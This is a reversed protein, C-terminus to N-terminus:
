KQGCVHCQNDMIFIFVILTRNFDIPSTEPTTESSESTPIPRQIPQMFDRYLRTAFNFEWKLKKLGPSINVGHAHDIHLEDIDNLNFYIQSVVLDYAEQFLYHENNEKSEQVLVECWEQLKIKIRDLDEMGTSKKEGDRREIASM